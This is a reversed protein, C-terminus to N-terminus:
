RRKGKCQPCRGGQTWGQRVLFAVVHPRSIVWPPEKFVGTIMEPCTECKVTVRTERVINM